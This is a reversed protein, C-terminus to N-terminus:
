NPAAVVVATSASATKGAADAVEVTATFAGAASYVHALSGAFTETDGLTAVVPKFVPTGDGFDVAVSTLSQGAVSFGFEATQNTTVHTSLVSLTATPAAAVPTPATSSTSSCASAVILVTIIFFAKM